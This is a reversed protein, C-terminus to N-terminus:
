ETAFLKALIILLQVAVYNNSCIKDYNFIM